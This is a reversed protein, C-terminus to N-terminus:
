TSQTPSSHPPPNSTDALQDAPPNQPATSKQWKRLQLQACGPVRLELQVLASSWKWESANRCLGAKMPNNHIYDVVQRFHDENRVYRDWYDQMWFRKGPVRLELQADHSMAWRGTYSKWSRVIRPLSDLAEILVHVHNPMVCWSILNYREGDFKKLADQVTKAVQPNKLACCGLGADLWKDLHKRRELSIASQPLLELSQKFNGLLQQPLSDALRFTIFQFTKTNDYHPLYGRSRWGQPHNTM